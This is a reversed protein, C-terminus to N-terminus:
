TWVEQERKPAMVWASNLNVGQARNVLTVVPATVQTQIDMANAEFRAVVGATITGVTVGGSAALRVDSGTGAATGTALTVESGSIDIDQGAHSSGV